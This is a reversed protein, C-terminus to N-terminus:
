PTIIKGKGYDFSLCPFMARGCKLSDESIEVNESIYIIDNYYPIMWSLLDFDFV